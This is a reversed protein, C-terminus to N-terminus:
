VWVLGNVPGRKHRREAVGSARAGGGAIKGSAAGGAAGIALTFRSHGFKQEHKTFMRKVKHRLMTYM